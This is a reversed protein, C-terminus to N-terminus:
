YYKNRDHAKLDSFPDSAKVLALTAIILLTYTLETGISAKLYIFFSKFLFFALLFSLVVGWSITPQLIVNCNKCSIHTKFFLAKRKSLPIDNGCNPCNRQFLQM